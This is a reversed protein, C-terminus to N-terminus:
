IGSVSMLLARNGISNCAVHQLDQTSIDEVEENTSFIALQRILQRCRQLNGLISPLTLKFTSSRPDLSDLEDQGNKAQSFLANLSPESADAM